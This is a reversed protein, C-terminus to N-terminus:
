EKGKRRKGSNELEQALSAEVSELIENVVKLIDPRKSYFRHAMGLFRKENAYAEAEMESNSRFASEMRARAGTLHYRRGHLQEVHTYEHFLTSALEIRMKMAERSAALRDKESLDRRHRNREIAAYKVFYDMSFEMGPARFLPAYTVVQLDNTAPSDIGSWRKNWAAGPVMKMWGVYKSGGFVKAVRDFLHLKEPDMLFLIYDEIDERGSIIRVLRAAEAILLREEVNPPREYNEALGESGRTVQCPVKPQCEIRPGEGAHAQSGLALFLAAAAFLRTRPSRM